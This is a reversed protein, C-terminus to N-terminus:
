NPSGPIQFKGGHLKMEMTDIMECFKRVLDKHLFGCITSSICFALMFSVSCIELSFFEIVTLILEGLNTLLDFAIKVLIRLKKKKEQSTVFHNQLVDALSEV